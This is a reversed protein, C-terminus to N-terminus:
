GAARSMVDVTEPTHLRVMIRATGAPIHSPTLKSVVVATALGLPMTWAAPQSIFCGPWGHVPPALLKFLVAGIAAAGGVVLGAGIGVTSARRWWIGLILM